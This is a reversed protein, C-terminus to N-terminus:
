SRAPPKWLVLGITAVTAAIAGFAFTAQPM